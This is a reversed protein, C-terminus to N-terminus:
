AVLPGHTPMLDSCRLTHRVVVNTGKLEHALGLALITLGMKTTAYATKGRIFRSYIPPAVFTVTGANQTCVPCRWQPLTDLWPMAGRCRGCRLVCRRCCADLFRLRAM